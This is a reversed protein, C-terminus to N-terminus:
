STGETNTAKYYVVRDNSLIHSVKIHNQTALKTIAKRAISSSIDRAEVLEILEGKNLVAGKSLRNYIINEAQELRSTEVTAM